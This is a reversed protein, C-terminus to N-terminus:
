EEELVAALKKARATVDDPWTVQMMPETCMLVLYNAIKRIEKLKTVLEDREVCVGEWKDFMGVYARQAAHAQRKWKRGFM